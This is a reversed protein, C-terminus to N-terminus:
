QQKWTETGLNNPNPTMDPSQLSRVSRPGQYSKRDGWPRARGGDPGGRNGDSTM